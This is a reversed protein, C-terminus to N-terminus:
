FRFCVSTARSYTCFTRLKSCALLLVKFHLNARRLKVKNCIDIRRRGRQALSESRPRDAKDRELISIWSTTHRNNDRQFVVRFTSYRERRVPQLSLVETNRNTDREKPLWVGFSSHRKPLYRWRKEILLLNASPWKWATEMLAPSCPTAWGEKRRSFKDPYVLCM